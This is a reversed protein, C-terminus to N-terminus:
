GSYFGAERLRPLHTYIAALTNNDVQSRHVVKTVNPVLKLVAIIEWDSRVGELCLTTISSLTESSLLTPLLSGYNNGKSILTHLTPITMPPSLLGQLEVEIPSSRTSNLILTELNPTLRLLSRTLDLTADFPASAVELTKLNGLTINPEWGDGRFSTFGVHKLALKRLGPLLRLLDALYEETVSNDEHRHEGLGGSAVLGDRIRRAEFGSRIVLLKVLLRQAPGRWIKSILSASSLGTLRRSRRPDSDEAAQPEEGKRPPRERRCLEVLHSLIQDVIEPALDQAHHTPLPSM